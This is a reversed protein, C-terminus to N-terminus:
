RIGRSIDTIISIIVEMPNASALMGNKQREREIQSKVHKQELLMYGEIFHKICASTSRKIAPHAAM